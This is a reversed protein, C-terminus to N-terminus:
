KTFDSLVSKKGKKMLALKGSILLQEKGDPTLCKGKKTPTTTGYKKHKCQHVHFSKKDSGTFYLARTTSLWANTFAGMERALKM